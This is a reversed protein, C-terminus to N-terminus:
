WFWCDRALDYKLTANPSPPTPGVGPCLRFGRSATFTSSAPAAVYGILSESARAAGVAATARHLRALAAFARGEETQPEKMVLHVVPYARDKSQMTGLLHVKAITSTPINVWKPDDIEHAFRITEEDNEIKEIVGKFILSSNSSGHLQEFIDSASLAAEPEKVPASRQKSM